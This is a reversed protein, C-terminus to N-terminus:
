RPLFFSGPLTVDTAIADWEPCNGVSCASTGFCNYHFVANAIDDVSGDVQVPTCYIFAPESDAGRFVNGTLQLPNANGLDLNIAWRESGVDKSVLIVSENPALAVGSSAAQVTPVLALVMLSCVVLRTM